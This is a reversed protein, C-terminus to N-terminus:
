VFNLYSTHLINILLRSCVESQELRPIGNRDRMFLEVTGSVRGGQLKTWKVIIVVKISGNGGVLLLNM